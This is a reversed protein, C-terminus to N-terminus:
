TFYLGLGPALRRSQFPIHSPFIVWFEKRSTIASSERVRLASVSCSPYSIPRSGNLWIKRFNRDLVWHIPETWGSFNRFFPDVKQPPGRKETPGTQIKTSHIAGMSDDLLWSLSAISLVWMLILCPQNKMNKGTERLFLVLQYMMYWVEQTVPLPHSFFLLGNLFM